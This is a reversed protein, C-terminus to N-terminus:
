PVHAAEVQIRGEVSTIPGSTDSIFRVWWAGGIDVVVAASFLGVGDHTILGDGVPWTHEVEVGTPTRTWFSLGGPDAPVDDEDLFAVHATVKTDITVEHVPTENEAM